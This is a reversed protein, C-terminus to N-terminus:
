MIRGPTLIIDSKGLVIMRKSMRGLLTGWSQGKWHPLVFVGQANEEVIKKLCKGILPIPPHAFFFIKDWPITLADRVMANDESLPSIYNPLKANWRTSFLDIEPAIELTNCMKTFIEPSLSYDGSRSLRSLSDAIGNLDGKVHQASLTINNEGCLNFLDRLSHYLNRAAAKRQINFVVSSNDSHLKLHINGQLIMRQLFSKIACVVARLERFNSTQNQVEEKWFGFANCRGEALQIWAGWGTTSADVWMHVDPRSLPLLSAPTNKEIIKQWWCLEGWIMHTLRCHGDWGERNVAGCKLRNMKVLYLSAREHQLRTSSLLGIISALDRVPVQKKLYVKRQWDNLASLINGRKDACLQVEMVQTNWQWGLYEFVQKPYLDSKGFSISWGLQDLWPIIEKMIRGLNEPDQDLFLLDDLYYMCRIKWIRRINWVTCRMIHTFVRPADKYGFPM